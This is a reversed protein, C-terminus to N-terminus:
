RSLRLSRDVFEMGLAQFAELALPLYWVSRAFYDFKWVIVADFRRHHADALLRYLEPRKEKTGSIGVDTYRQDGFRPVFNPM